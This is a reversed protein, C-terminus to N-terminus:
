QWGEIMELYMERLGTEPRWGLEELKSVDLMLKHTPPFKKVNEEGVGVYVKIKGESIESAVMEAMERISCYTEKNAANYVEGTKGKLLVTLIARVADETDLYMRKSRGDTMIEIDKGDRVCRAFQAFVRTDDAKVGRGFTQALRIIKVPIHFESAYSVCLNECMRKSEPYSSRLELPNLYQVQEETLLKEEETFGYVEMTSLYVVGKVSKKKAFELINATGKLNTKIVQVPHEIMMSSATISAGHIIYDIDDTIEPLCCIDGQIIQINEKGIRNGLKSLLDERNRVLLILKVGMQYQANEKLLYETLVSGILGSAGTVLLKANKLEKPIIEADMEKEYSLNM